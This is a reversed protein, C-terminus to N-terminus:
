LVGEMEVDCTFDDRNQNLHIIAGFIERYQRLVPAANEPYAVIILRKNYKRTARLLHLLKSDTLDKPFEVADLILTYEDGNFFDVSLALEDTLINHRSWDGPRSEIFDYDFEALDTTFDYYKSDPIKAEQILTSKGSGTKGIVIINKKLNNLIMKALNHSM